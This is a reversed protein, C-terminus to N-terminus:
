AAVPQEKPRFYIAPCDSVIHCQSDRCAWVRNDDPHAFAQHGHAQCVYGELPRWENSEFPIDRVNVLIRTSAGFNRVKM